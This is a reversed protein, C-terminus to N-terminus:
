RQIYATVVDEASVKKSELLQTLVGIDSTETINTDIVSKGIKDQHKEIYQSRIARKAEVVGAWPTKSRAPEEKTLM